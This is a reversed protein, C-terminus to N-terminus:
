PQLRVSAELLLGHAFVDDTEGHPRDRAPHIAPLLLSADRQPDDPARQWRGTTLLYGARRRDAERDGDSM